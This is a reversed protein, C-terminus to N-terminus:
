KLSDGKKIMSFLLKRQKENLLNIHNALKEVERNNSEKVLRKEYYKIMEESPYFIIEDLLDKDEDFEDKYTEYVIQEQEMDENLDYLIKFMIDKQEQDLQSLKTRNSM